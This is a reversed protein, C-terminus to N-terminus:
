RSAAATGQPARKTEHDNAPTAPTVRDPLPRGLLFGQGRECGLAQLATAQAETEVGEATVGMGLSRALDVITRVISLAEASDEMGHVFSRDIKLEDFPLERLHRLSSYGAGFDDLAIGIGLNKLSVLIARAVDFDAILADETIEIELRQPPFGCEALVKLLKQPLASDRLQVAAINLSIRPAGPWSLSEVCARRLVNATLEGILGTQEAIRIFITPEIPGRTKHTWRSLIEYGTIERTDFAVFPQFHPVIEDNRVANRLDNELAARERVREEMGPEYFTFRGRGDGKARYLAVDARRMLVDAKVGDAPALAVGLTAGVAVENDQLPLPKDFKASLASLRDILADEGEYRLLLVFEDGGLRAVFGDDDAEDSLIRAIRVLLEDGVAHGYLDNVPKFRDLDVAVVALPASPSVKALARDLTEQLHRRNPLGTLADHLAMAATQEAIALKSAAVQRDAFALVIGILLTSAAGGAVLAALLHRGLGQSSLLVRPDPELTLAGMGTFHLSVIAILLLASAAALRYRKPALEFACLAAIAFGISFIASAIVLDPAWIRQAAADLGAMGIYHMGAIGAGLLVGAITRGAASRFYYCVVFAAWAFAVCFAASFLTTAFDFGIPLSPQYGLMAVFHTAWTGSGAVLAALFLWSGRSRNNAPVGGLIFFAGASAIVCLLAALGVLWLNHEEFVCGLVRYMFTLESLARRLLPANM